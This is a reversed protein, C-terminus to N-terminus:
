MINANEWCNIVIPTKIMRVAMSIRLLLLLLLRLETENKDIKRVRNLTEIGLRIRYFNYTSMSWVIVTFM